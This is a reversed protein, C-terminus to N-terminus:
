QPLSHLQMARKAQAFCGVNEAHIYARRNLSLLHHLSVQGTPVAATPVTSFQRGRLVAQLGRKCAKSYMGRGKLVNLTM